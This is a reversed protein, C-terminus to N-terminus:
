SRVIDSHRTSFIQRLENALEGAFTFICTFHGGPIRKFHVVRSLNTWASPSYDMRMANEDCVLCFLETDVFPPLYNSLRRYRDMSLPDGEIMVDSVASLPRNRLFDVFLRRIVRWVNLRDRAGTTRAYNWIVRMGDIRIKERIKNPSIRAILSLVQKAVHLVIRGNLSPSDILVVFEAKRGAKTLQHAIEWALVSGFCFGGIRFPGTPQAALLQPVYLRAMDEITIQGAADSGQCPNLLFIPFDQDILAALRFMWMGRYKFDGHCFFFPVGSGHKACTILEDEVPSDRLIAGALQRITLVGQLASQPIRRRTLTEVEVIMEATMLSDGGAEFFNEDVGIDTRGLLRQWIEAILWELDGEPPVIEHVRSSFYERLESTRIKGTETRPLTSTVHVRQPVKFPALREHLFSQLESSTVETEPKLVVAASVNEGLRPHPVGFAVAERVAPHLLLAKEIEYPAVKEGGRNIVDKIRGVITLFGDKDIIGLDGTPLWRDGGDESAIMGPPPNTDDLYGPSVSPGRVIIEGVAGSDLLGGRDDKIAVEGPSILGVTGPKHTAPPAPNAAMVGAESLGYAELVPVRLISELQMRVTDALFGAGVAIFRLSHDVSEGPESQLNKLIAQALTPNMLFWTPRLDSIWEGINEPHPVTPIAVGGGLLLSTLINVKIGQAYYAPTLLASRDAGSLGFWRQLKGAPTLLNEHTLRIYKAAGTTGSSRLVLATSDSSPVGSKRLQPPVDCVQHVAINSLSDVVQAARFVGLSRDKLTISLPSDIWNPLVIADLRLRALEENLEGPTLNPNLPVSIAHSAISVGFVVAEPGKPLLIGVRSSSGIGAAHLQEGVSRIHEGLEQFTFSAQHSTIIAPRKPHLAAQLQIADAITSAEPIEPAALTRFQLSTRNM